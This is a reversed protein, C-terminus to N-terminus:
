RGHDQEEGIVRGVDVLMVLRKGLQAVARVFGASEEAMIEPPPRLEDAAITVVERASDVLLGVTRGGHQVVIVRSDLTPEASPLGFRARLAVVPVVRGRIQILGGVYDRTGPVRTAGSYSEMHLVDAASIVYETDAVKLVVHLDIM